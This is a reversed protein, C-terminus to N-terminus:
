DLNINRPSVATNYRYLPSAFGYVPLKLKDYHVSEISLSDSIMAALRRSISGIMRGTRSLSNDFRPSRM